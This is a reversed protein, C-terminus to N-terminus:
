ENETKIYLVFSPKEPKPTPQPKPKPQVVIEPPKPKPPPKEDGKQAFAAFSSVLIIAFTFLLKKM